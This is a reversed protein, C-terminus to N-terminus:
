KTLVDQNAQLDADLDEVTYPLYAKREKLFAETEWLSLNLMEGVQRRTLYGQRYGEAAIWELLRYPLKQEGWCAKLQHEIQEPLEIMIAM